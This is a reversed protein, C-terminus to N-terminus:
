NLKAALACTNKFRKTNGNLDFVDFVVVYIGINATQGTDNLGDWRLSGKTGITENKFLKRVLLGKDTYINITVLSANESLQYDLQLLDEFGDHDPSFTKSLLKVYNEDGNPEQSNKYSPTAFGASAAASKFNGPENTGKTFLVRELSVGDANQLLLIHMKETYDLRDIIQGNSLLIVSGKDNNYAPLSSLQIFNDPNQVDYNAKVSATNTSIVWYTGPQIHLTKASVNKISGPNGTSDSHALQLDKLDLIHDTNNYIEVFDVSNSKPNSLVESILIDNKGTKKAIFLKATNASGDIQNGACDSVNKITLTNELGRTLPAAFKLVSTTFLPSQITVNVPNGIGNNIAYNSFQAASLSDVPKSFEVQVTLSDLITTSLIKPIESSIQAHYVSSQKGPTGGAADNSAMWNQIGKCVNKPDILELSFGGKKKVDDKYWADYYAVKDIVDGNANSLTLIDGDNNLGPWPSIGITKGFPKFLTTDAKACLVIHQNPKITDTLFTYTSTQDLYKWGQTLIYENSTNWLEIFEKQPLALSGTPDAFIENIVVDGFKALYPKIYFFDATNGSSIMNAKKDKVNNTTLTYNGTSFGKSFTLRYVNSLSTTSVNIPNGYANSLSYNSTLLASTQDLAESFIADLHISDVITISKLTPSIVDPILDTVSFDDFIYQNYRSATAYKCYVGMYASTTFVNDITSGELSFNSGGLVDTYLDWRGDADRTVKIKALLINTNSRAKQAGTIIRTTSTGNQRYLHFGDTSGTEGIQVFYGNLGSKLDQNDSSLYVRVFNTATPDFNLQVFFEWSANLGSENATSLSLTQSAIQQGKSQLQNQANIQFYDVDGQWVPNQTFDSDNFHDSIQSFAIKSFLLLSILTIKLM